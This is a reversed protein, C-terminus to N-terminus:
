RSRRLEYFEYLLAEVWGEVMSGHSVHFSGGWQVSTPIGFNSSILVEKSMLARSSKRIGVVTTVGCSTAFDTCMDACPQILSVSDEIVNRFIM